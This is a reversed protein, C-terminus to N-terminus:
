RDDDALKDRFLQREAIGFADGHEHRPRHRDQRLHYRRDDIQEFARRFDEHADEAHGAVLVRHRFLLNLRDHRFTDFAAGDLFGFMFHQTADDPQSIAVDFGDHRVPGLHAEDVRIVRQLSHARLDLLGRM